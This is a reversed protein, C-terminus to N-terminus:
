LYSIFRIICADETFNQHGFCEGVLVAFMMTGTEGRTNLARKM